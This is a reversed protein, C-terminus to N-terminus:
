LRQDELLSQQAEVQLRLSYTGLECNSKHLSLHCYEAFLAKEQYIEPTM